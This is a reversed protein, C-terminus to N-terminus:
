DDDFIIIGILPSSLSLSLHIFSLLSTLHLSLAPCLLHLGVLRVWAPLLLLVTVISSWCGFAMPQRSTQELRHLLGSIM